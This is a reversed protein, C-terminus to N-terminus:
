RYRNLTTDDLHTVWHLYSYPERKDDIQPGSTHTFPPRLGEGRPLYVLVWSMQCLYYFNFNCLDEVIDESIRM